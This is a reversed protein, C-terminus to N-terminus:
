GELEAKLADFSPWDHQFPMGMGGGMTRYNLRAPGHEFVIVDGIYFRGLMVDFRRPNNPRQTFTARM